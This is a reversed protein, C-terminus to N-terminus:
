FITRRQRFKTSHPLVSFSSLFLFELAVGLDNIKARKQRSHLNDNSRKASTNKCIYHHKAFERTDFTIRDYKDGIAIMGWIRRDSSRTRATPHVWWAKQCAYASWSLKSCFTGRRSFHSSVKRTSNRILSGIIPSSPSFCHEEITVPSLASSHQIDFRQQLFPGSLLTHNNTKQTHITQSPDQFIRREGEHTQWNEGRLTVEFIRRTFTRRKKARLRWGVKENKWDAVVLSERLLNNVCKHGPRWFHTDTGIVAPKKAHNKM